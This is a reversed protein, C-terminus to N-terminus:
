KDPNNILKSTEAYDFYKGKEHKTKSRVMVDSDKGRKRCLESRMISGRKDKM